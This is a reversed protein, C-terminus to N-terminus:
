RECHNEHCLLFIDVLLDLHPFEDAPCNHFIQRVCLKSRLSCSQDAAAVVHVSLHAVTVTKELLTKDRGCGWLERGAYQM